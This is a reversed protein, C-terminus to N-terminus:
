KLLISLKPKYEELTAIIYNLMKEISEKSIVSEKYVLNYSYNIDGTTLEITFNGYKLSSNIDCLLVIVDDFLSEPLSIKTPSFINLTYKDDNILFKLMSKSNTGLDEAIITLQNADTRFECGWEDLLTSITDYIRNAEITNKDM